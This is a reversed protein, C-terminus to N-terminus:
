IVGFRKKYVYFLLWTVFADYSSDHFSGANDELGFQQCTATYMSNIRVESYPLTTAAQRLKHIRGNFCFNQLGKLLNFTYIGSSKGPLAIEKGFNITKVGNQRLTQNIVRHDFGNTNYEVWTLDELKLINLMHNSIQDEFSLGGSKKWLLEATLGNVAAAKPDLPVQTYCYFNIMHEIALHADTLFGSFQVVEDRNGLGTTEIDYIFYKM